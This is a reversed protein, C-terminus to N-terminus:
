FAQKHNLFSGSNGKSLLSLRPASWWKKQCFVNKVEQMQGENELTIGTSFFYGRFAKM